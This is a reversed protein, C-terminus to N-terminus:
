NLLVNNIKLAELNKKTSFKKNNSAVKLFFNVSENLSNLYDKKESILYQKIVKPQKILDNNDLNLAPGKVLIKADNQEVIGNDFVFIKKNILPSTYSSFIEVSVNNKILINLYSNDYSTGKKSFNILRPKNIKKIKFINNILDLWHVSLMEFVGKPCKNKDSRWNKKYSKKLAIGKGSIINGYVLNGLNFKNKNKLIKAIKSFRFNYNYYIKHSKIKFLKKLDEKINTPPKECFVYGKKYLLNIYHYHTENPSIIFFVNFKNLEKLSEKKYNKKSKPLYINFKIKKNRLIKQIRKSHLSRGIICVKLHKYM